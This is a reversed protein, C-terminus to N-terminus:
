FEHFIHILYTFHLLLNMKPGSEVTVERSWSIAALCKALLLNSVKTTSLLQFSSKLKLLSVKLKFSGSKSYHSSTPPVKSLAATILCSWEFLLELFAEAPGFLQIMPKDIMRSFYIWSVIIERTTTAPYQFHDVVLLLPWLEQSQVLSTAFSEIWCM